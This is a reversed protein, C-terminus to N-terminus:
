KINGESDKGWALRGSKSARFNYPKIAEIIGISKAKLLVGITGTINLGIHKAHLRGPKEDIILLGANLETSLIIAEAEGQDLDIFRNLDKKDKIAKIKIWDTRKLDCYYDKNKGSEVEKYVAEPVYIEGYMEQLINLKSIKLLSIIPTTNSVTKLM